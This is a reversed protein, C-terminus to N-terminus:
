KSASVKLKMDWSDVSWMLMLPTGIIMVCVAGCGELACRWEGKKQMRAELWDLKEQALVVRQTCYNIIESINPITM